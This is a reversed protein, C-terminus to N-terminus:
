RVRDKRLAAPNLRMWIECGVLIANYFLLEHAWVLLRVQTLELTLLLHLHPVVRATHVGLRKM